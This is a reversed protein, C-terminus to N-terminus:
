FGHSELIRELTGDATILRLGENFDDLKARYEAARRSVVLHQAEYELVPYMAELEDQYDPFNRTILYQAVVRDIVILDVRRHYVKRINLEDTAADETRLYPARAFSLPKAYGQHTGIRYGRLDELSDFAVPNDRRKFFVLENPLLPDSFAFWQERDKRHWLAFMGDFSGKRTMEWSRSWPMFSVEVEYGVRSYAAVVIETIVGQNDLFEGFYPPYEASALRIQRHEAHGQVPFPLFLVFWLLTATLLRDVRDM